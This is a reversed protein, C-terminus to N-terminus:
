ALGAGILTADPMRAVLLPPVLPSLAGAGWIGMVEVFAKCRNGIPAEFATKGAGGVSPSRPRSASKGEDATTAGDGSSLPAGPKRRRSPCPTEITGGAGFNPPESPLVVSTAAPRRPPPGSPNPPAAITGGGGVTLSCGASVCPDAPSANLAPTCTM